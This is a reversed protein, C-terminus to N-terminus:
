FNVLKAFTAEKSMYVNCIIKNDIVVVFSGSLDVHRDMSVISSMYIIEIDTNVIINM